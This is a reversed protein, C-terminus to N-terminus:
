LRHVRGGEEDISVFLPSSANAQFSQILLKLSDFPTQKSINKEFLVIGGIKGTKIESNIADNAQLSTRDNIGIMIMQGIKIDLSDTKEKSFVPTAVTVLCFCICFRLILDSM